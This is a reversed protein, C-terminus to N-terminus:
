RDNMEGERVEEIHYGKCIYGRQLARLVGSYAAKLHVACEGISKFTEGTEVIRIDGYKRNKPKPAFLRKVEGKEWKRMCTYTCVLKRKNHEIYYSHEEAPAFLEGCVPCTIQKEVDPVAVFDKMQYGM